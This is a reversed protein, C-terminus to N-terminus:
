IGREAKQAGGYLGGDSEEAFVGGNVPIMGVIMFVSLLGAVIKRGNIRKRM